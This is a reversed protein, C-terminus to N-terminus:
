ITKLFADLQGKFSFVIINSNVDINGRLSVTLKQIRRHNTEGLLYYM